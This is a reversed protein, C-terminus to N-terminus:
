KKGDQVGKKEAVMREVETVAEREKKGFVEKKPIRKEKVIEEVPKEEM